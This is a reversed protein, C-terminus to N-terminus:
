AARKVFVQSSESKFRSDKELYGTLGFYVTIVLLAALLWAGTAKKM